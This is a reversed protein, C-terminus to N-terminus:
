HLFGAGRRPYSSVGLGTLDGGNVHAPLLRLAKACNVSIDRDALLQAVDGSM